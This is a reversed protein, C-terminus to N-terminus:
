HESLVTKRADDLSIKQVQDGGDVMGGPYTVTVMPGKEGTADLEMKRYIYNGNNSYEEITGNHALGILKRIDEPTGSYGDPETPKSIADEVDKFVAEIVEPPMEPLDYDLKAVPRTTENHGNINSYYNIEGQLKWTGDPQKVLNFNGREGSNHVGGYADTTNSNDNSKEFTFSQSKGEEISKLDIHQKLVEAAVGANALLSLALGWSRVTDWKSKTEVVKERGEHRDQRSFVSNEKM